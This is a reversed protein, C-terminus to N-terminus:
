LGSDVLENFLNKFIISIEAGSDLIVIVNRNRVTLNVHPCGHLNNENIFFVIIDNSGEQISSCIIEIVQKEEPAVKFKNQVTQSRAPGQFFKM